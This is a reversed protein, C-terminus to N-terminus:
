HKAALQRLETLLQDFKEYDEVMTHIKTDQSEMSAHVEEVSAMNQETTAAINIMEDAMATYREHLQKASSFATDSHEKVLETNDNIRGILQEVQRSVERSTIVATQGHEVQNHVASIQTRIGTLIDSIENAANRSHDALKRVEGSVVAFGKGHEGARAAEIAANLALLNTQESIDSITGVISSVRENQESLEKMMQVTDVIISRVSEVERSLIAMQENNQETLSANESSYQKLLTTKDLLAKVATDIVQTSESITLINGTQKEIAASMETFTVTVERSIDGTSQVGIQQNSSFESLVLISSKLKSLLADALDKSALAERQKENVQHQLRQSFNASFALAATAFSLYMFLYVLTDSPFLRTQLDPDLFLYTSLGAGLIGTFIIPKYDAYLTIIALNVYVLFYTSVIPAPDSVILLTVIVTLVCPVLYKVYSAFVRKYTMFTIVAGLLSGVILLRLILKTELGIAIDTAVGLALLSWIIKVLLRNRKDLVTLELEM